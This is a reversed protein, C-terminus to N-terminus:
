DRMKIVEAIYAAKASGDKSGKFYGSREFKNLVVLEDPTLNKNAPMKSSDKSMNSGGEVTPPQQRQKNEFLDPYKRELHKKIKPLATDIPVGQRSLQDAMMDAEMGLFEDKEYWSNDKIWEGLIANNNEPAQSKPKETNLIQDDINVVAAHDGEDLAQLKQEKLDNITKEYDRKQSELEHNLLKNQHAQISSVASELENIKKRQASIKKFFSGNEIYKEASVFEKDNEAGDFRDPPMWGDAMAQEEIETYQPPLADINEVSM